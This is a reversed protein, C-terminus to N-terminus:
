RQAKWKVLIKCIYTFFFQNIIIKIKSKLCISLYFNIKFVYFFHNFLNFPLISILNWFDKMASALSSKFSSNNLRSQFQSTATTENVTTSSSQANGTLSLVEDIFSKFNHIYTGGILIKINGAYARNITQIACTEEYTIGGIMFVIIEQPREKFNSLNGLFPYSAERLKGKILQEVLEKVLPTHQTYINEIGKHFM